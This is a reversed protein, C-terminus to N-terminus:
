NYKYLKLQHKLKLSVLLMFYKKIWSRQMALKCKNQMINQILRLLINCSTNRRMSYYNIMHSDSYKKLASMMELYSVFM